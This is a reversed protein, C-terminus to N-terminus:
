WLKEFSSATIEIESNEFISHKTKKLHLNDKKTFLKALLALPFLLFFFIIFLLVKPIILSLIYALKTWIFDILKAAKKSLLGILGVALAILLAYEWNTLFYIGIFGLNIILVTTLAQTSKTNQMM